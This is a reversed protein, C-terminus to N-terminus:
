SGQSFMNKFCAGMKRADANTAKKTHALLQAVAKDEPLLEHAKQLFPLAQECEGRKILAQGKRLLAKPNRPEIALVAELDAQASDLASADRELPIKLWAAARNLLAPVRATRMLAEEAETPFDDAIYRLAKNYKGIAKVWAGSKFLDNGRERIVAAIAIKDSVQLASPCDVPYSPYPDREDAVVGDPEGPQLEGCDTIICPRTPKSFENVPQEEVQRVVDSGKLVQGFIVHHGDLQGAEGVTIFFQSANSDQRGQAKVMSLVFPRDHRLDAAFAEDAFGPGYISYGGGLSLGDEGIFSDGGTIVDGGQVMFDKIVRHFQTGKYHLPRGTQPHNHTGLCLQRFNEATKPVDQKYLEMVVRGIHEGNIAIDFFVRPNDPHRMPADSNAGLAPLSLGAALPAAQEPAAPAAAAAAPAPSAMADATQERELLCSCHDSRQHL